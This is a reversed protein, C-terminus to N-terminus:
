QVEHRVLVVGRFPDLFNGGVAYYTGQGDGFIAHIDFGTATDELVVDDIEPDFLGGQGNVGGVVIEDPSDFYVANFGGLGSPAVTNWSTGDYTAIRANARGGVAVLFDGDVGWLSVFDDNAEAGAGQAIWDAGDYELILGRQGVAFLKGAVGYVKFLAFAGQPNQESPLVYPTFADGDYNLLVPEGANIDGGVFWLDDGAFGFVGWLDLETGSDLATWADGDYHLVTGRTGSVWVDDPGFGHVWVLLPTGTPLQMESWDTGDFHFITGRETEGGVVFVDSPGSAWVGSVSGANVANADFAPEWVLQPEPPPCATLLLASVTVMVAARM